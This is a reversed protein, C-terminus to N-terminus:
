EATPHLASSFWSWYNEGAVDVVNNHGAKEILAFSGKVKAAEFVAKGMRSPIVIDRTGHIVSVRADTMRVAASVDFHIRSIFKWIATVPRAFTLRAMDRASTFPSQLLLARPPHKLAIEAAVASGLSHGFLLIHDPSLHLTDKLCAYAAESDLSSTAYSPTGSLGGYGRYEALFVSLGFRHVVETAWAVQWVALDANGHFCLLVDSGSGTVLFGFLQQGDSARYEIKSAAIDGIDVHGPPQFLIKEQKWWLLALAGIILLLVFFLVNM